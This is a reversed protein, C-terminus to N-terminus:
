AIFLYFQLFYLLFWLLIWVVKNFIFKIISAIPLSSEILNMPVDLPAMSKSSQILQCTSVYNSIKHLMMKFKLIIHNILAQKILQVWLFENLTSINFIQLIVNDLNGSLVKGFTILLHGPFTQIRFPFLHASSVQTSHCEESTCSEPYYHEHNEANQNCWIHKM